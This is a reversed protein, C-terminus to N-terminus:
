YTQQQQLDSYSYYQSGLDEKLLDLFCSTQTKMVNFNLVVLFRINLM